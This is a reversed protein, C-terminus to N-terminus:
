CLRPLPQGEPRPVMRNTGGQSIFLRGTSARKVRATGVAASEYGLPHRRLRALVGDAQEPDVVLVMKGENVLSLPDLGLMECASHVERKVPIAAREVFVDVSSSEAIDILVGVLGGRTPDRLARIGDFEDILPVLLEHLPACDSRIRQEFGLGERASLVALGHDGVSGTVIIRDGARANSVAFTKGPKIPLGLGTTNIFIGSGAQRDLVKTDGAVIQVGVPRATQQASDLIRELQEIPFGEVLILSLTMYVPLAGSALLDNVTGSVALRGIDGGPFVPPYVVYSDTSVVLPTSGVTFWSGDELSDLTPNGFRTLIEERIFRLTAAGGDGHALTVMSDGWTRAPASRALRAGAPSPQSGTTALGPFPPGETSVELAALERAVQDLSLVEGFYAAILDLANQKKEERTSLVCDSIAVARYGRFSADAATTMICIQTQLGTLYIEKVGAERLHRDLETEFFASHKRKKIVMGRLPLLEPIIEAGETGEICYRDGFRQFQEDDPPLSFCAYFVPQGASAFLDIARQLPDLMERVQRMRRLDYCLDKQMDVVLLARSPM